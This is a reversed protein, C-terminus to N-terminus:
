SLVKSIGILGNCTILSVTLPLARFSPLYGSTHTNTATAEESNFIGSALLAVGNLYYGDTDLANTFQNCVASDSPPLSPGSVNRIPTVLYVDIGSTSAGISEAPVDVGKFGQKKIEFSYKCATANSDNAYLKLEFPIQDTITDVRGNPYNPTENFGQLAYNGLGFLVNEQPIFGNVNTAPHKATLTVTKFDQEITFSPIMGVQDYKQNLKEVFNDAVLDTPGIKLGNVYFCDSYYAGGFFLVEKDRFEFVAVEKPLSDHNVYKTDVFLTISDGAGFYQEQTTVGPIVPLTTEGGENTITLEFTDNPFFRFNNNVETPPGVGDKAGFTNMQYNPFQGLNEPFILPDTIPNINNIIKQFNYTVYVKPTLDKISVTTTQINVVGNDTTVNTPSDLTLYFQEENKEIVFDSLASIDIERIQQGVNWTLNIPFSFPFVDVSFDTGPTASDYQSSPTSFNVTLSETGFVSPETLEVTIVSSEGEDLYYASQSFRANRVNVKEIQFNNKIWHKNYFFPFDNQIVEFGGNIGLDITDTGYEVFNGDTDRFVLTQEIVTRAYTVGDGQVELWIKDSVKYNNLELIYKGRRKGFVNKDGFGIPQSTITTIQNGLVQFGGVFGENAYVKITLNDCNILPSDIIGYVRFSKSANREKRFQEALDFNNDFKERKIINFKQQLNINIFIDENGKALFDESGLVIKKKDDM